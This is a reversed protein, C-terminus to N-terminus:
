HLILIVTPTFYVIFTIKKRILRRAPFLLVYTQTYTIYVPVKHITKIVIILKYM